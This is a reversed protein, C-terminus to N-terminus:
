KLNRLAKAKGLYSILVGGGEPGINCYSLDLEHIDHVQLVCGLTVLDGASLGREWSLDLKGDKVIPELVDLLEPSSTETQCRLALVRLRKSEEAQGVVASLLGRSDNGLLGCCFQWVMDYVPNAIFMDPLEAKHLVCLHSAALFEQLTLHLFYCV